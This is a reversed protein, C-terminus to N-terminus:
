GNCPLTKARFYGPTIDVNGGPEPNKSLKVSAVEFRPTSQAHAWATLTVLATAAILSYLRV